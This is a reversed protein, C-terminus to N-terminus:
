KENHSLHRLAALKKYLDIEEETLHDPLVTRVNVILNGFENKTGYLPMGLGVLRLEKGNPTGKPINVTVKGKFTKILTKGGLIATYLDVPLDCYLDIGRQQFEANPAIKVTLFLDGHPGGNSGAGGKGTVRLTQKDAVGPKITVKITQGQLQILRTTGHYVEELSLITETELDQGQAPANRRGRRQGGQQGFLMEFIDNVGDDTFPSGSGQFGTQQSQDSAYKSWDFGGPKAGAAEYQKWDSGFQDYKKRKVPDSLVENAETTSKFKEEAAKDGKTKDPHYKKALARFAKKIEAPSATKAVGLIKYYDKYIM